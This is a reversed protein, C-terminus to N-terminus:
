SADAEKNAKTSDEAPTAQELPEHRQILEPAVAPPEAGKHLPPLARGLEDSAPGGAIKHADKHYSYTSYEHGVENVVRYRGYEDPKANAM